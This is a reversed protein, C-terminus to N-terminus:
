SKDRCKTAAETFPLKGFVECAGGETADYIKRNNLRYVYDAIKYNMESTELDPLGWNQGSFYRPDFHSTDPGEMKQVENPKGSCEFRHDMGVIFINRFGLSYAIQLASYTVTAGHQIPARLMNTTFHPLKNMDSMFRICNKPLSVGKSAITSVFSPCNLLAFMAASQEIVLPNIAVHFSFDLQHKELLLYIKNLGILHKNKLQSFDVKNLSPGNCLLFADEGKFRQQLPKIKKHNFFWWTNFDGQGGLAHTVRFSYLLSFLVNRLYRVKNM